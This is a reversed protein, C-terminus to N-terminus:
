LEINEAAAQLIMLADLSTIRGDDNVDAAPNQAGTAALQLAIAADAPTISGDSNLDGKLPTGGTWSQMLPFYDISEGGPIPHPDDGIGDHNTDNGEYDSWYNGVTTSNWQNTYPDYANITNAILNNHYLTNHNSSYGIYIGFDYGYGGHGSIFGGGGSGGKGINANATNNILTCNSSSSLVIGHSHGDGGDGGVMRRSYGGNGGSGRNMNATNSILTCNSSSSLVIGYGYGNGGDTGCDTVGSDRGGNGGRGRNTNATNNILTCNGSSHLVIGHGCGDGGPEDSVVNGRSGQGTNANAANNILVCNSSFYLYIGYSYGDADEGGMDNNSSANNNTLVCNSSYDLYIGKGNNSVNNDSINCCDTDCLYFGGGDTGTVTFGSINVYDATVEFVNGDPNAAQVITLVSRNEALIALSKDVGVNETYTGDRVIITDGAAANDVAQQITPYNDPVWIDGITIIKSLKNNWEVTENVAPKACILMSHRGDVSSATWQFCVNTYSITKLTPISTNSQSIGDVIFDVSINSENNLGTNSITVNVIITSNAETSGPADISTVAIDHDPLVDFSLKTIDTRYESDYAYVTVDYTGFLSTNTFVGDYNGVLGEFSTIWETSGDPKMINMNINDVSINVKTDNQVICSITATKNLGYAIKDTHTHIINLKPLTWGSENVFPYHDYNVGHHPINTDGIGDGVIDHKETGSGNDIGTYDSWYNGELLVPHYWDNSAPNSDYANPDNNVLNNHFLLNSDSSHLSIGRGKNSSITNDVLTSYKVGSLYVGDSGSNKVTNNKVTVLGGGGAIACYIGDSNIGTSNVIMNDNITASKGSALNIYLGDGANSRIVNREIMANGTAPYKYGTDYILGGGSNELVSDRLTLSKGYKFYIASKGCGRITANITTLNCGPAYLGYGKTTDIITDTVTVNKAGSLYVGDSGSNKVTNNKVTVLGGGGAIACYIGDSNIGTSNVIMNDNITASKGSALNIYLGDGANSRIVNREIMANGTAPYKYGTDYILGGGSNELVSDRLTLSKGYKFYIASKGCGRITVNSLNLDSGYAYVGYGGANKITFGSIDVDTSSVRICDGSGGGDIITTARGEGRITLDKNNIWVNETYTGNYVLITYGASANDIADQIKTYDCGSSGVTITDASAAGCSLAVIVLALVTVGCLRGM